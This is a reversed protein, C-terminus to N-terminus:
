KITYRMGLSFRYQYTKYNNFYTKDFITNLNYQLEPRLYIVSSETMYYGMGIGLVGNFIDNNISNSNKERSLVKGSQSDIIQTESQVIHSWSIGGAIDFVFKNYDFKRGVMLPINVMSYTNRYQFNASVLASDYETYSKENSTQHMALGIIPISDIGGAVNTNWGLVTDIYTRHFVTYYYTNSDMQMSSANYNIQDRIQSYNIGTRIFWDNYYANINGGFHYSITTSNKNLEPDITKTPLLEIKSHIISPGVFLEYDYNIANNTAYNFRNPKQEMELNYEYSTNLNILPMTLILVEDGNSQSKAEAIAQDQPTTNTERYTSVLRQNNNTTQQKNNITQQANSMTQQKNDVKALAETSSNTTQQKNNITQQANSMTQQENSITQQKITKNEINNEQLQTLETSTSKETILWGFSIIAILALTGIIYASKSAIGSLFMSISIRTWLKKSPKVEDFGNFAEKLSNEFEDFEKMVM